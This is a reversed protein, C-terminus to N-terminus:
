AGEHLLKLRSLLYYYSIAIISFDRGRSRGTRPDASAERPLRKGRVHRRPAQGSASLARLLPSSRSKTGGAETHGRVRRLHGTQVTIKLPRYVPGSENKLKTVIANKLKPTNASQLFAPGTTHVFRKCSKVV